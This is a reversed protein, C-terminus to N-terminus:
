EKCSAMCLPSGFRCGGDMGTRMVYMHPGSDMVM